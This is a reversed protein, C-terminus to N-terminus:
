DYVPVHPFCATVLDEAGSFQEEKTPNAFYTHFKSCFQESFLKLSDRLSRTPRTAVLIFAVPYDPNRYAIIIADAMRIEQVDGRKLSEKLIGTIGQIM